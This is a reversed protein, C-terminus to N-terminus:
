ETARGFHANMVDAPRAGEVAEGPFSRGTARAVSTRGVRLRYRTDVSHHQPRGQEVAGGFPLTWCGGTPHRCLEGTM